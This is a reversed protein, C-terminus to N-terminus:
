HTTCCAANVPLRAEDIRTAATSTIQKMRDLISEPIIHYIDKDYKEQISQLVEKPIEIELPFASGDLQTSYRVIVNGNESHYERYHVMVQRGNIIKHKAEQSAVTDFEIDM